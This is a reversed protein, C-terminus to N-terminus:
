TALDPDYFRLTAFFQVQRLLRFAELEPACISGRRDGVIAPCAVAEHIHIPFAELLMRGLGQIRQHGAKRVILDSPPPRIWQALRLRVDAGGACLNRDIYLRFDSSAAISPSLDASADMSGIM